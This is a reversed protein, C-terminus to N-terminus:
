LPHLPITNVRWAELKSLLPGPPGNGLTLLGLEKVGGVAGEPSSVTGDRLAEALGPSIRAVAWGGLGSALCSPDGGGMGLPSFWSATRVPLPLFPAPPASVLWGVLSDGFSLLLLELGLSESVGHGFPPKAASINARM